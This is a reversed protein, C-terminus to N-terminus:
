MYHEWGGYNLDAVDMDFIIIASYLKQATFESVKRLEESAIVISRSDIECPQGLKCWVRRCGSYPM